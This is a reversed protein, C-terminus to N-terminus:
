CRGNFAHIARGGYEFDFLKANGVVLRYLHDELATFLKLPHKGHLFLLAYDCLFYGLSRGFKSVRHRCELTREGASTVANQIRKDWGQCFNKLPQFDNDIPRTLMFVKDDSEKDRNASYNRGDVQWGHYRCCGCRNGGGQWQNSNSSRNSYRSSGERQDIVVDHIENITIIREDALNELLIRHNM